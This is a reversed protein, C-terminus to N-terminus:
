FMYRQVDYEIAQGAIGKFGHMRSTFSQAGAKGVNLIIVFNNELLRSTPSRRADAKCMVAQEGEFRVRGHVASTVRRPM